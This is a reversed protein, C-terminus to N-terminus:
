QRLAVVVVQREQGVVVEEVDEAGLVDNDALDPGIPVGATEGIDQIDIM